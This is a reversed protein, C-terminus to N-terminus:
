QAVLEDKRYECYCRHERDIDDDDFLFALPDDDQFPKEQSVFYLRYADCGDDPNVGSVKVWQGDKYGMTETIQTKPADHPLRLSGRQSVVSMSPFDYWQDAPLPHRDIIRQAEREDYRSTRKYYLNYYGAAMLEDAIANWDYGWRDHAHDWDLQVSMDNILSLKDRQPDTVHAAFEYVQDLSALDAERHRAQGQTEVHYLPGSIFSKVTIRIGYDTTDDNGYCIEGDQTGIVYEMGLSNIRRTLQQLDM